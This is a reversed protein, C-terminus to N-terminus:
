KSHDADTFTNSDTAAEVAAAIQNATIAGTNGHVSLVLDTPTKLLTFDSMDGATGANRVYSKNEDARVVVDGQQTTLALHASQNAAEQVSTIALATVSFENGSLQMGNGATYPTSAITLSDGAANTTLTINTGATITLNDKYSDAVVDSQGSVKITKFGDSGWISESFAGDTITKVEPYSM